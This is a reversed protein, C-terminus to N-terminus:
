WSITLMGERMEFSKVRNLFSMGLLSQHLNEMVAARVNEVAVRDIRVERLTVPAFRAPGNATLTIGSFVLESRGIGAAQADDLTLAVLNAGTDVVARIPVGNIMAPVAFNGHRDARYVLTRNLSPRLISVPDNASPPPRGVPSPPTAQPTALESQPPGRSPRLNWFIWSYVQGDAYKVQCLKSDDAVIVGTKGEKDTVEQGAVCKTLEQGSALAAGAVLAFFALTCVSTKM